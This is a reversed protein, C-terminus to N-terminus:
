VESYDSIVDILTYIDDESVELEALSKIGDGTDVSLNKDIWHIEVDGDLVVPVGDQQMFDCSEYGCVKFADKIENVQEQTM